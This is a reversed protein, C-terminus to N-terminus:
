EAVAGASVVVGPSCRWSAVEPPAASERTRGGDTSCGPVRCSAGGAGAGGGGGGGGASLGGGGGGAIAGGGGIAPMTSSVVLVTRSVVRGITSLTPLVTSLTVLGTIPTLGTSATLPTMGIPFFYAHRAQVHLRGPADRAAVSGWSENKAKATEVAIASASAAAAIRSTMLCKSVTRASRAAFKSALSM